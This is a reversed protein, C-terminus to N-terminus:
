AAAGKMTTHDSVAALGETYRRLEEAIEETARALDIEHTEAGMRLSVQADSYAPEGVLRVEVGAAEVLKELRPLLAPSAVLQCQLDAAAEIRPMLEAAVMAALGSTSLVPLVQEVMAELVPRIAALVGARAEHYTFGADRIAQGLDGSLGAESESQAARCDDWGSKYGAEYADLRMGELDIDPEREPPPPAPELEEVESGFEELFLRRTM